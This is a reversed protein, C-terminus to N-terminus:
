LFVMSLVPKTDDAVGGVHILFLFCFIDLISPLSYDIQISINTNLVVLEGLTEFKIHGVWDLNKEMLYPTNRSNNSNIKHSVIYKM